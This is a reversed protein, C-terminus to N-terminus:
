FFSLFLLGILHSNTVKKSGHKNSSGSWICSKHRHLLQVQSPGHATSLIQIHQVGHTVEPKRRLTCSNQGRRSKPRTSHYNRASTESCRPWMKLSLSTKARSISGISQGSRRYAIVTRRQAIDLFLVSMTNYLTILFDRHVQHKCNLFNCTSNSTDGGLRWVNISVGFQTRSSRTWYLV